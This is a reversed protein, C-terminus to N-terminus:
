EKDESESKSALALTINSLEQLRQDVLFNVTDPPYSGDSGREGAEVGTLLTIADDVNDYTHVCFKGQEAAEVVDPRLMLHKANSAPILVGQDGTLGIAKCVDHFGEIKENVGGIAQAEGHQNISGTIALGQKIPVGSLESMLACLEAMSASDGEVMGYSQEFVLSASLSLPFDKAYRAALLSSLILVGKSHIPGGLEVEREIDVIKGRGLRTTATIRSPQGFAMNGLSLVSLGNVQGIKDGDLDVLFTGRHIQEHVLERIRDARYIQQQVAKEVHEAGITDSGDVDAWYDSERLLDTISRMHTSLKEQDSVRRAAQEIMLAVAPRDMPKAEETKALRALMRAYMNINEETRDTEDSFDAAVKFLENFDPDYQQLLYYLLRDGLLVVKVNLPIPQPKLSVTSILSYGDALSELQLEGSTLSRKLAEWAFPQLLVDRVNLVLFGGNARHLAGAKILSFDTMFSGLHSEYEVRGMLNNYHPFSEFVVPAGETRTNDVILNVKYRDFDTKKQQMFLLPAGDEGGTSEFDESHQIVDTELAELHRAVDDLDGYREKLPLLLVEIASRAAEQNLEKVKMRANKMVEPMKKVIDRMKPSLEESAEGLKEKEEPSLKEIDDPFILAVGTPRRVMKLGFKEAEEELKKLDNEHEEFVAKQAEELKLKHEEEELAAPIASKLDDILQVMDDQLLKGLGAPLHLANPKDTVNFNKVYCWDLPRPGDKAKEKLYAEIATKKGAGPPGLVYLNYGDRRMGVGFQIASEARDQGLLHVNSNIDPIGATTVFDFQDPDCTWRLQAPQLSRHAYLATTESFRRSRATAKDELLPRFRNQPTAFASIIRKAQKGVTNRFPTPASYAFTLVRASLFCPFTM